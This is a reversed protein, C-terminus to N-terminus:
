MDSCRWDKQIRIVKVPVREGDELVIRECRRKDGEWGVDEEEESTRSKTTTAHNLARKIDEM